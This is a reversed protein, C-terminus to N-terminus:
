GTKRLVDEPKVRVRPILGVLEVSVYGYEAMGRHPVVERVRCLEFNWPFIFFKFGDGKWLEPDRVMLWDGPELESVPVWWWVRGSRECASWLGGGPLRFRTGGISPVDGVGARPWRQNQVAELSFGECM